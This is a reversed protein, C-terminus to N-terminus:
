SGIVACGFLECWTTKGHCVGQQQFSIDRMMKAEVSPNRANGMSASELNGKQRWAGEILQHNEDEFDVYGPPVYADGRHQRLYNHLALSAYIIKEVKEPVLAIPTLFVRFRNALVGFANEVVRRARSLRYNFIRQEPVMNRFPYPKMLDPRLPYADDGVLMYPILVDTGPLTEPPPFDLRGTDMAEKLDSHAFVGADAVRGQTGATAYIFNLNADVVAMLIVSFRGRYNHFMSGSKPPPQIVVHKGDIAGMCHPFHWKERFDRAIAKWESVSSPTQFVFLSIVHSHHILTPRIIYQKRLWM